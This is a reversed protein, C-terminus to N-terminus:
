PGGADSMALPAWRSRMGTRERQQLDLQALADRGAPTRDKLTRIREGVLLISV